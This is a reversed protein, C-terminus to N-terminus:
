AHHRALWHPLNACPRPTVHPRRHHVGRQRQPDLLFAIDGDNDWVPSGVYLVDSGDRGSGV